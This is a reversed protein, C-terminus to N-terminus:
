EFNRQWRYAADDPTTERDTLHVDAQLLPMNKLQAKAWGSQQNTQMQIMVAAKQGTLM